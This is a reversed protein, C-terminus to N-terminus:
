LINEKGEPLFSTLSDPIAHLERRKGCMNKLTFKSTLCPCFKVCPSLTLTLLYVKQRIEKKNVQVGM